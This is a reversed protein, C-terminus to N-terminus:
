DLIFKQPNVAQSHVKVMYHLHPGTSAGTSGVLGLVDGRKVRQGQKVLTKSMHGYQTEIGYGHEIAVVNGMKADFGVAMVTGAAPSRVPANPQSGIDIGDHMALQGTFPSVRPGFGSTVWGKVPWVSPTAGWREWREKAAETMQQLSREQTGAEDQLWSIKQQLRTTMEQEWVKREESPLTMPAPANSEMAADAPPQPTLPTEEGGQGNMYDEPKLTEVGLMVRLKQNVEKIALLRRRLEEVTLSFATTQEKTSALEQRIAHLEIVESTQIVYQILFALQIVALFVGVVLATKAFSRSFCFRVPKSTAGRFIVITYSDQSPIM